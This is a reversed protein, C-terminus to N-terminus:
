FAQLRHAAPLLQHLQHGLLSVQLLREVRGVRVAHVPEQLARPLRHREEGYTTVQKACPTSLATPPQLKEAPNEILTNSHCCILGEGGEAESINSFM